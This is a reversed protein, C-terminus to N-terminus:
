EFQKVYELFKKACRDLNEVSGGGQLVACM